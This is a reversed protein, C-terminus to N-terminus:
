MDKTHSVHCPSSPLAEQQWVETAGGRSGTAKEERTSEGESGTTDGVYLRAAEDALLAGRFSSVKRGEAANCLISANLSRKTLRCATLVARPAPPPQRVELRMGCPLPELLEGGRM